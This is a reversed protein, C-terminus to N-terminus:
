EQTGNEDWTTTCGEVTCYIEIEGSYGLVHAAIPASHCPTLIAEVAADPITQSSM